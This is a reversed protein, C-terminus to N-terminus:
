QQVFASQSLNFILNKEPKIYTKNKGRQTYTHITSFMLTHTHTHTHTHTRKIYIDAPYFCKFLTTIINVPCNCRVRPSIVCEYTVKLEPGGRSSIIFASFYVHMRSTLLTFLAERCLTSEGVGALFFFFLNITSCARFDRTEFSLQIYNRTKSLPLLSTNRARIKRFTPRIM